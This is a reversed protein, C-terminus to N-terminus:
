VISVVDSPAGSPCSSVKPHLFLYSGAFSTVGVGLGVGVGIGEVFGTVVGDVLGDSFSDGEAFGIGVGVGVKVISGVIFEDPDFASIEMAELPLLIDKLSILLILIKV